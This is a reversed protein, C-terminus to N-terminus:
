VQQIGTWYTATSYITPNILHGTLPSTGSYSGGRDEWGEIVVGDAADLCLHECWYGHTMPSDWTVNGFMTAHCCCYWVRPKVRWYQETNPQQQPKTRLVRMSFCVIYMSIYIYIDTIKCVGLTQLFFIYLRISHLSLIRCLLVHIITPLTGAHM